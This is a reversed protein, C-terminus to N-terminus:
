GDRLDELGLERKVRDIARDHKKRVAEASLGVERGIDAWELGQRRLGLIRREEATLRRDAEEVLENRIAAQSPSSATDAVLRGATDDVQNLAGGRKAARERRAKDIVKDSIMRTVLKLLDERTAIEGPALRKGLNVLVSQCIDESDSARRTRADRRLRIRAFRRLHPELWTMLEAAAQEDGAQIRILLNQFEVQDHM